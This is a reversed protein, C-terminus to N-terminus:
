PYAVVAYPLHLITIHLHLRAAFVDSDIESIGITLREMHRSDLQKFTDQLSRFESMQFYMGYMSTQLIIM